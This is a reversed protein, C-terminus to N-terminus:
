CDPYDHLPECDLASSATLEADSHYGEAAGAAAERLGRQREARPQRLLAQRRQRAATQEGQPVDPPEEQLHEPCRAAVWEPTVIGESLARGIWQELRVPTEDGEYAYPETERWGEASLRKQWAVYHIEPIIDLDLARRLWAQMSLGYKRKLSALEHLDLRSRRAGLEGRAVQAPVLLASGFRFALKEQERAPLEGCALCLHGLEHALSLRRRDPPVARQLLIVPRSDGAYGSLGEFHPDARLLMVAGRDETLHVLDPILAEGLGWASRLRGAAAEAQDATTAPTSAPWDLPPGPAFWDQLVLWAETRREAWAEIQRQSRLTLKAAKRYACWTVTPPSHALFWSPEPVALARALRRLSGANPTRRDNEYQSLAQRTPSGGLRQSLEELTLGAAVRAQRLRQGLM